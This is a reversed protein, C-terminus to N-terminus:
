ENFNTITKSKQAKIKEWDTGDSFDVQILAQHRITPFELQKFYPRM